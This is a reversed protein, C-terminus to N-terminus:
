RRRRVARAVASLLLGGAGLAIGLLVISGMHNRILPVNGFFYGAPVLVAVWAAAGATVAAVFRRQTMGLVGAVFPALTRVVAIFPSLLFTIGGYREYFTRTRLLADRDIWRYRKTFVQRGLLRGSHYCVISGAVTAIFFVAAILWPNLAGTACFAGCIFLLPDGPLFFLPVIGIECFVILFLLVYIAAGYQAIAAGLDRDIYLLLQLLDHWNM